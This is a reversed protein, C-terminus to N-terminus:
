YLSRFRVMFGVNKSWNMLGCVRPIGNIVRAMSIGGIIKGVWFVRHNVLRKEVRWDHVILRNVFCSISGMLLVPWWHDIMKVDSIVM